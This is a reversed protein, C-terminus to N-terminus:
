EQTELKRYIGHDQIQKLRKLRTRLIEEVKGADSGPFQARIGARMRDCVEMFLEGGWGMKKTLPAARARRVKDAYIADALAQIDKEM